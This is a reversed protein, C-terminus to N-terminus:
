IQQILVYTLIQHSFICNIQNFFLYNTKVNKLEITYCLSLYKFIQFRLLLLVYKHNLNPGKWRGFIYLGMHLCVDIFAGLARLYCKLFEMSRLKKREKKRPARLDKGQDRGFHMIVIKRRFQWRQKQIFEDEKVTLENNFKLFIKNNILM